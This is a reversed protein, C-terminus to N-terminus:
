YPPPPIARLDASSTESPRVTVKSAQNLVADDWRPDWFPSANSAAIALVYYEGPRVATM